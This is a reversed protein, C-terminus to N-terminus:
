LLMSMLFKRKQLETFKRLIYTTEDIHNPVSTEVISKISCIGAPHYNCACNREFTSNLSYFKEDISKNKESNLSYFKEVTSENKESNSSYINEDKTKNKEDLVNEDDLKVHLDFHEFSFYTPSTTDNKKVTCCDDSNNRKFIKRIGKLKHFRSFRVFKKCRNIFSVFDFSAEAFSAM